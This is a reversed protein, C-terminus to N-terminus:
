DLTDRALLTGGAVAAPMLLIAGLPVLFCLLVAIGFGLAAPRHGRLGRRRDALRLGRREYPVGVLELALLWGGGAAGLVPALIQGAVPVFGIAFVTIGIPVSLGLLRLADTIGRGVSRLVPTDAAAPANGLQEEVHASIREYFPGGIALTAATFSVVGLVVALAALAIGAVIRVATRAAPAWGDAFWTVLASLHGLFVLFLILLVLYLVGTLLAPLIGIVLLRPKRLCIGLGRALYAPGSVFQNV